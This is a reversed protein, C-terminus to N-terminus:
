KGNNQWTRLIHAGFFFAGIGLVLYNLPDTTAIAFAFDSWEVNFPRSFLSFSLLFVEFRIVWIAIERRTRSRETNENCTSEMYGSFQEVMKVNFQAKEQETFQQGDIWGGIGSAVKMVNDSGHQGVGFVAKFGAGIAKFLNM